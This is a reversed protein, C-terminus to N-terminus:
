PEIGFGLIKSKRMSCLYFDKSPSLVRLIRWRDSVLLPGTTVTNIFLQHCQCHMTHSTFSIYFVRDVINLLGCVTIVHHTTYYAGNCVGWSSYRLKFIFKWEAAGKSRFKCVIMNMYFYHREMQWSNTSHQKYKQSNDGVATYSSFLGRLCM